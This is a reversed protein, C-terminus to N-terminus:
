DKYQFYPFNFELAGPRVLYSKRVPIGSDCKTYEYCMFRKGCRIKVRLVKLRMLLNWINSNQMQNEFGNFLIKHELQNEHKLHKLNSVEVVGSHHFTVEFYELHQLQQIFDVCLPDFSFLHLRRLEPLKLQLNKTETFTNVACGFTLTLTDLSVYKEVMEFLKSLPIKPARSYVFLNQIESRNEILQLLNLCHEAYGDVYLSKLNSLLTPSWDIIWFSDRIVVNTVQSYTMLMRNLVNIDVNHVELCILQNLAPLPNFRVLRAEVQNRQMYCLKLSRLNPMLKLWYRLKLYGSSFYSWNLDLMVHWIEHGFHELIRDIENLMENYPDQQRDDIDIIVFRGLFPQKTQDKQRLIFQHAFRRAYELESFVYPNAWENSDITGPVYKQDDAKYPFFGRMVPRAYCKEVADNWASCVLRFNIVESKTVCPLYVSHKDSTKESEVKKFVLTNLVNFFLFQSRKDILIERFSSCCRASNEQDESAKLQRLIICWM